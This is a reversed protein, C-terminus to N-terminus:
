GLGAIASKHTARVTRDMLFNQCHFFIFECFLKEFFVFFNFFKRFFTLDLIKFRPTGAGNSGADSFNAVLRNKIEIGDILFKEEPRSNKESTAKELVQFTMGIVKMIVVAFKRRSFAVTVVGGKPVGEL